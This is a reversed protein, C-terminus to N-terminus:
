APDYAPTFNTRVAVTGDKATYARDSAKLPTNSSDDYYFYAIMMCEVDEGYKVRFKAHVRMGKQGKVTVNHVVRASEFVAEPDDPVLGKIAVNPAMNKTEVLSKTAMGPSILSISFLGTVVLSPFRVKRNKM